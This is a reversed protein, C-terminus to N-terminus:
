AAGRPALLYHSVLWEEGGRYDWLEACAMFFTRWNALWATERQRGYTAALIPRVEDERADVNALWARATRAYHRGNVRWHERVVLDQQCYLVLDDSPMMGGTFFERGMWDDEGETEFLYAHDRHTFVHLFMRGEPRLWGAVRALLAEWNRMHEFMEVSVVRDFRRETGFVNMDATVVELRGAVGLRRAEALLYERQPASNSVALVRARPFRELVFFSFSGWGCGLELVEMGDEIGARAASLELMATEAQALTATGPEWLCGSYKLRPGLAREFFAPPLEYHQRNAEAVHVAIPGARMMALFARKAERDGELSGTAEERLRRGLLRRIGARLLWDPVKHSEVLEQTSLMPLSM